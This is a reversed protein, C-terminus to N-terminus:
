RGLIYYRSGSANKCTFTEHCIGHPSAYGDVILDPKGIGDMLYSALSHIPKISAVVKVEANASTFFTLFSIITLFFPIKKIYSM